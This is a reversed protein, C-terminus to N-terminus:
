RLPEGGGGRIRPHAEDYHEAAVSAREEVRRLLRALTIMSYSEVMRDPIRGGVSVRVTYGLLTRGAGLSMLAWAGENIPPYVARAAMEPTVRPIRGEAVVRTGLELGGSQLDWHHEWLRDASTKAMAINDNVAIVWHRDAFPGPMHFFQYWNTPWVGDDSIRVETLEPLSTLHPDRLAVWLDDRRADCLLLGTIRQPGRDTNGQERIRVVKGSALRRLRVESLGPLSFHASGNYESLAANLQEALPSGDRLGPEAVLPAAPLLSAALFFLAAIRISLVRYSV